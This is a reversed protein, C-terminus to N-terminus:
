RCYVKCFNENHKCLGYERMKAKGVPKLDPHSYIHGIHYMTRDPNWDFWDLQSFLNFTQDPTLGCDRMECTASYRAFQPPNVRFIQERTCPKVFNGMLTYLAKKKNSLGLFIESEGVCVNTEMARFEQLNVDSCDFDTLKVTPTDKFCIHSYPQPCTSLQIVENVDMDVFRAPDLVVCYSKSPLGSEEVRRTNPYRCLRRTDGIVRTDFQAVKIKDKEGNADKTWKKEYLGMEDILKYSFLKLLKSPNDHFQPKFTPYSHTGRSGSWLSLPEKIGNEYCWEFVKQGLKLTEAKTGYDADFFAKDVLPVRNHHSYVGVFGNQIGSDLFMQRKMDEESYVLRQNQGAYRPM